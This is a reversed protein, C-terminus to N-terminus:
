TSSKNKQWIANQGAPVSTLYYYLLQNRIGDLGVQVFGKTAQQREVNGSNGNAKKLSTQVVRLTM